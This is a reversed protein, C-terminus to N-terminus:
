NRHLIIIKALKSNEPYIKFKMNIVQVLDKLSSTIALFVNVMIIHDYSYNLFKIHIFRKVVYIIELPMM